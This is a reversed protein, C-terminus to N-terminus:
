GCQQVNFLTYHKHGMLGDFLYSYGYNDNREIFKNTRIYRYVMEYLISSKDINGILVLEIEEPNLQLEEIAILLFYIFDEKTHYRFFNYFHLKNNKFYVLDYGEDRVNLFLTHNSLKNKFNINLSEIIASTCHFFHVNAWINKILDAIVQPFSFVTIVNSNNLKNFSSLQGDEVPHNFQLYTTTKEEIFLPPPILTSFQNDILLFVKLFKEKLWLKEEFLSEFHNAVDDFSNPNNFTYSDFVIYKKIGPNFVTFALSSKGLQLSLYYDATNSEIFSKDYFSSHPKIRSPM